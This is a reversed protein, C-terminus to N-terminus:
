IGRVLPLMAAGIAGAREGLAAFVLAPHPRYEPAYLLASFWRQIPGIFLTPTAAIGGGLVFLAPDLTNTLNVLGLAVWRAYQDVLELAEADGHAAATTVHEGRVASPDDDALALVARLRGRAAEGRALAALGSGSAYREWCGRRGCACDLGDPDVVAHGFEGAFGNHGRWVQGGAIIGGGIGTGLTVVVLDDVGRGAGFQWEGVAACTADNDASVQRDLRRALLASVPVDHVGPLHPSSRVVGDRTVLGPLGIGLSDWSGLEGALAALGDILADAGVPTPRRIENLVSGSGDLLVGLLKTGGVDIGARRM